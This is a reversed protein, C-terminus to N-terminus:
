ENIIIRYSVVTEDRGENDFIHLLYIGKSLGSVDIEKQGDFGQQMKDHWLVNGKLDVLQANVSGSKLHRYRIKLTEIVPNPYVELDKFYELILGLVRDITIEIGAESVFAELKFETDSVGLEGVEFEVEAADDLPIGPYEVFFRYVGEPLFGFKFEGNEDTEGYAVLVFDNDDQGTRGGGTKRRLGCKRKAARRRADIRSGEEPFDEEILVDLVGPGETLEEPVETMRVQISNGARFFLTDALQWEVEDGFYTPIFLEKNSPDIGCLYDGLVVDQFTFSSAVNTAVELTDFGQQRRIAELLYGSVPNELPDDNADVITMELDAVAWITQPEVQLTLAPLQPNTVEAAFEGMNDYDIAVIQVQGDVINFDTGQSIAQGNRSFSYENTSGGTSITLSPNSLHPQEIPIGGTDEDFFLNPQPSYTLNSIGVLPELDDFELRNTSVDLDIISTTSFDMLGTIQNNHLNMASIANLGGVAEGTFPNPMDGSAGQGNLDVQDVRTRTSADLTVM